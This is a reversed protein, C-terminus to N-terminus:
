KEAGKRNIKNTKRRKQPSSSLQFISNREILDAPVRYTGDPDKELSTNGNVLLSLAERGITEYNEHVTTLPSVAYLGAEEDGFGTVSVDQPLHLGKQYALLQVKMALGDGICFFATPREAAPLDLLAKIGPTNEEKCVMYRFLPDIGNAALEDMFGNYREQMYHWKQYEGAIFAIKRHGGALICKVIKRAVNYNDTAVAPFEDVATEYAFVLKVGAKRALIATEQRKGPHSSLSLVFKIRSSVIEAFTGELDNDQYTHLSLNLSSAEDLIGCIAHSSALSQRKNFAGNCIVACSSSEGTRMAVAHPNRKYGLKRAAELIRLRTEPRLKEARPHNRLTRSVSSIDVQALNAVDKITISMSHGKWINSKPYYLM